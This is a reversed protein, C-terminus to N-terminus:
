SFLIYGDVSLVCCIDMWIDQTINIKINLCYHTMLNLTKFNERRM